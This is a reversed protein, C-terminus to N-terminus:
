SGARAPQLLGLHELMQQYILPNMWYEVHSAIPTLADNDRMNRICRDSYPLAPDDYFRLAGGLPDRPSYVNVWPMRRYKGYDQILPEAAASFVGGTVDTNERQSTVILAVRDLPSGFTLFLRTRDVIGLRQDPHLEDHLVLANLTDYLILSGVSHGMLGVGEYELAGGADRMAYISRATTSVADQIERRLILFRKLLPSTVYVAIEGVYRLLIGRCYWVFASLILWLGIFWTRPLPAFDIMLHQVLMPHTQNLIVLALMAVFSLPTLVYWLNTLVQLSSALLRGSLFRSLRRVRRRAHSLMIQNLVVLTWVLYFMLIREFGIMVPGRLFPVAGGSADTDACPAFLHWVALSTLANIGVFFSIVLTTCLLSFRASWPVKFRVARGFVQREFYGFPAALGNITGGYIFGVLDRFRVRDRILHAWYAEYLHLEVPQRREDLADFEIRRLSQEGAVVTRVRLEVKKGAGGEVHAALGDATSCLTEFPMARSTSPVVFVALKRATPVRPPETADVARRETEKGAPYGGYRSM